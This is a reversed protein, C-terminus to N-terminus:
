AIETIRIALRQGFVEFEAWGVLQQNVMVPVDAGNPKKTEVLSGPELQLLDRVTFHAVPLDVSLTCPLWGADTWTEEPISRPIEKPLAPVSAM